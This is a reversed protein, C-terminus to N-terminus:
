ERLVLTLGAIAVVWDDSGPCSLQAVQQLNQQLPSKAAPLEIANHYFDLMMAQQQREALLELDKIKGRIASAVPYDRWEQRLARLPRVVRGRWPAILARLALLHEASLSRDATAVWAAYLLLNVDMGFGDQLALCSEAVGDRAYNHVSFEWLPNSM